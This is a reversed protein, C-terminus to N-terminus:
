GARLTASIAHAAGPPLTVAHDRVNCTELCLMAPWEDDGFDAMAKAKAIWPNWVVTSASGSKEVAIRRGWVPDHLTCTASTPGYIRDTEGAIRIPDGDQTFAGEAALRDLYRTWALGDVRVQRVDSVALYTHLAEEFRIAGRGRNAVHLSLSLARGVAVEYRVDIGDPWALGAAAETPLAFGLRITGDADAAAATLTWDALRAFGHMPGAAGGSRAGFWPFCIPVGGRIPRDPAFDSKASLFLYPRAGRPQFHTVHAGHLYIEAEALPTSVAVRPLGGRGPSLTVGDPLSNM